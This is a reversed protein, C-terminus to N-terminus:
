IYQQREAIDGAEHQQSNQGNQKVVETTRLPSLRCGILFFLSSPSPVSHRKFIDEYIDM